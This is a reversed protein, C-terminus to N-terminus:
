CSPIGTPTLPTLLPPFLTNSISDRVSKISVRIKVSLWQKPQVAPIPDLQCPAVASSYIGLIEETTATEM